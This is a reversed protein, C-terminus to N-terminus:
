NLDTNQDADTSPLVGLMVEAPAIHMTVDKVMTDLSFALQQM